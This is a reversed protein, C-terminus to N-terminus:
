KDKEGPTNKPKFGALLNGIGGIASLGADLTRRAPDPIFILGRVRAETQLAWGGPVAAVSVYEGDRDQHLAEFGSFSDTFLKLKARAAAQRSATLEEETPPAYENEDTNEPEPM